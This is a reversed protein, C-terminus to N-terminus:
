PKSAEKPANDAEWQKKARDELESLWKVLPLATKFPLGNLHDMVAEYQARDVVIPVYDPVKAPAADDAQAAILGVILLCWAILFAAVTPHRVHWPLPAPPQVEAFRRQSPGPYWPAPPVPPTRAAMDSRRLRGLTSMIARISNEADDLTGSLGTSVPRSPDAVPPAGAIRSEFSAVRELIDQLGGRVGEVRQLLGIEKPATATQAGYQASVQNRDALQQYGSM